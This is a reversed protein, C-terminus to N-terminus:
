PLDPCGICGYDLISKHVQRRSDRGFRLQNLQPFYVRILKKNCWKKYLFRKNQKLSLIKRSKLSYQSRKEVEYGFGTSLTKETLLINETKEKKFIKFM